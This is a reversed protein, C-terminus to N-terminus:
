RNKIQELNDALDVWLIRRNRILCSFTLVRWRARTREVLIRSAGRRRKLDEIRANGPLGTVFDKMMKGHKGQIELCIEVVEHLFEGIAVFDEETCGRSTM